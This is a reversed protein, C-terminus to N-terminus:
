PGSAAAPTGSKRPAAAVARAIVQRMSDAAADFSFTASWLRAASAIHGYRSPDGTLEAMGQAMREPTPPVVLGTEGSRVADRLGPVDYVVAPTGCANAEAISLGWGERVSAMLLVHARAMREHKEDAALRGLFDVANDVGLTGARRRLTRLYGEPGDGVLWLRGDHGARKFRAFAEIIDHVRKSPAMRGVYLFTTVAEKLVDPVVMPELGIPLVTIPAKFGLRRLDSETSASITMAPTRRYARLYGPEAVYGMANIPFRSEHWWVERALQFILLVSPVPSWLPTFFPITNVEDIVVDFRTALTRRYRRVAHIHVSSQKGSRVLHIGDLDEEGAAGEFSAVFWEVTDGRNVLRRAVEHTFLEAGGAKPNRPDRWSLFLIRLASDVVPRGRSAV